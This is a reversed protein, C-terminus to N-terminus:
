IYYKVHQLSVEASLQTTLPQRPVQLLDVQITVYIVTSGLVKLLVMSSFGDVLTTRYSTGM